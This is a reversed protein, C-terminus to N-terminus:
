RRTRRYRRWERRGSCVPIRKAVPEPQPGPPPFPGASRIGARWEPLAATIEAGVLVVAWSLFMWLLTIPVVAAAGYITTYSHSRTLYVAFGWRLLAFLLGAVTGGIAADFGRVPRNPAQAFLLSFAAISLLTPLPVAIAALIPAVMQIGAPGPDLAILAGEISLSAGILLPGLTMLTWYLLFRALLTRPEAVRFVVNLESEITILMTIASIGLGILGVASLSGANAIFTSVQEEVAQGVAPVFNAFIWREITARTDGFAPFAALVALAIALLPVLSLLSTYSLSAAVSSARDQQYRRGVLIIFRLAAKLRGKDM